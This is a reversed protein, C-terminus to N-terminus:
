KFDGPAFNATMSNPDVNAEARLLVPKDQAAAGNQILHIRILSTTLALAVKDVQLHYCTVDPSPTSEVELSTSRSNFDVLSNKSVQVPLGLKLKNYNSVGDNFPDSFAANASGPTVPISAKLAFQDPILDGNTNYSNRSLGLVYKECDNLGDNTSSSFQVSGDPNTGTVFGACIAYPDRGAVSCQPDKCAVGKTRYEVLDSVGNGDSDVANPNSGLQREIEDPLGDGDSDLMFRGDDWWVGNVNEVFVDTLLNLLDRPPPAFQQYLINEGTAFSLFEGNGAQAMQQLLSQAAVLPQGNSYYAANLTISAIAKGFNPDYKLNMISQIVPGIDTTFTQTYTANSSSPTAITPVGDSVFIIEYVTTIPPNDPLLASLQADKQILQQALKLADEYNTFGADNPAPNAATGSGIWDKTVLSVFATGDALFGSSNQPQWATDNFDILAYSLITNPDPVLNSIFNVLPGFRRSGAPDTNNVDNPTLPNPITAQNSQSHDLIFVYKLNQKAPQRPSTCFHADVKGYGVVQLLAPDIPKLKESNCALLLPAVSLGVLLTRGSNKM